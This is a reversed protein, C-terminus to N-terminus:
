ENTTLPKGDSEKSGVFSAVCPDGIKTSAWALVGAILPMSLAVLAPDVDYKMALYTLIGMVGGKASQDVAQNKM